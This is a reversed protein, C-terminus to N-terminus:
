QFLDHITRPTKLDMTRPTKDTLKLSKLEEESPMPISPDLAWEMHEEKAWKQIRRIPIIYNMGSERMADNLGMCLGNTSFVGGGSSGPFVVLTTQDYVLGDVRRGISSYVGTSFSAYESFPSSVGYLPEGLKPIRGSLDFVVTNTNFFNGEVRLIALDQGEDDPSCKILTVCLNTKYAFEGNTIVDQIVSLNTLYTYVHNPPIIVPLNTGPNTFLFTLPDVVDHHRVVHGATWIFTVNNGKSDKRTFAIGSGISEPTDVTVSVSVLFEPVSKSDTANCGVLGLLVVSLILFQLARKVIDIFITFNNLPNM